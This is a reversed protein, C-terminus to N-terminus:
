LERYHFSNCCKIWARVPKKGNKAGNSGSSNWDPFFIPPNEGSKAWKEGPKGCAEL